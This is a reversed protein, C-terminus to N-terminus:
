PLQIFTLGNGELVLRRQDGSVQIGVLITGPALTSAIGLPLVSRDFSQIVTNGSQDFARDYFGGDRRAALGFTAPSATGGIMGPVGLGSYYADGGDSQTVLLSDDALFVAGDGFGFGPELANKLFLVDFSGDAAVAYRTLDHPEFGTWQLALSRGDHSLIPLGTVDVEMGAATGFDKLLAGSSADFMQLHNTVVVLRSGVFGATMHFNFDSAVIGTLASGITLTDPDIPFLRGGSQDAALLVSGDPAMAMSAFGAGPVSIAQVLAGTYVNYVDIEDDGLSQYVFPRVPDAVMVGYGASARQSRRSTFVTSQAALTRDVYLGVRVRASGGVGTTAPTVALSAYHMGDALGTPDAHFALSSGTTGTSTDLVLWGQDSTAQWSGPLGATDAVPVSASLVQANALSTLAVGPTRVVLMRPDVQLNVSVSTDVHHDVDTVTVTATHAGPALTSDLVRATLTASGSGSAQDIGLWASDSHATWNVGNATLALTTAAAAPDQGQV